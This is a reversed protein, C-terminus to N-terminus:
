PLLQWITEFNSKNYNIFYQNRIEFITIKDDLSILVIKEPTIITDVNHVINKPLIKVEQLFNRAFKRNYNAAESETSIIKLSINKKIRNEIFESLFKNDISKWKELDSTVYYFQGPKHNSLLDSYTSKLSNLGYSIKIESFDLKRFFLQRLEPLNKTLEDRKNSIIALLDEPDSM